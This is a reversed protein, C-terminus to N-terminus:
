LEKVEPSLLLDRPTIRWVVADPNLLPKGIHEFATAVLESCFYDDGCHWDKDSAIGLIARWDYPKGIQTLAWSYAAEVLPATCLLRKDFYEEPVKRIRVGGKVQASLYSNDESNFFGAHSWPCRTGYRILISALSTNCTSLYIYIM